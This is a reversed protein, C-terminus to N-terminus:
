MLVERVPLDPPLDDRRWAFRTGSAIPRDPDYAVYGIVPADEGRHEGANWWRRCATCRGSLTWRVEPDDTPRLNVEGGCDCIM